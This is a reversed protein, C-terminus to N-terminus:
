ALGWKLPGSWNSADGFSSGHSSSDSEKGSKGLSYSGRSSGKGSKVLGNSVSVKGSKSLGYSGRGPGKGSKGSGYSSSDSKSSKSYGNGLGLGGSKSKSSKSYSGSSSGGSGSKSGKSYSGSGSGSGGSKSKSSKSGSYSGPGGSKSKANKSSGLVDSGLGSSGSWKHEPEPWYPEPEPEPDTWGNHAWYNSDDSDCKHQSVRSYEDVLDGGKTISTVKTCVLICVEPYGTIVEKCETQTDTKDHAWSYLARSGQQKNAKADPMSPILMPLGPPDIMSMDTQYVTYSKSANEKSQLMTKTSRAADIPTSTLNALVLLVSASTFHNVM